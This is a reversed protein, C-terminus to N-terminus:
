NTEKLAQFFVGYDNKPNWVIFGAGGSDEAAKIQKKIYSKYSLGSKGVLMTFGQIYAIVRTTGARKIARTKGDYITRYPNKQYFPDGYFHSPYLMPYLTDMYRAFVEMKQGIIDNNNFPIRGFIDAGIRVGYPRLKLEFSRLVGAIVRYRQNLTLGKIHLNDAFRIYDLQIEMFGAQASEEARKRVGDLHAEPAPYTKLGGEFVVVRSVLYFGQSKAEQIFEKPPVRPQVDVVLTNIGTAKAKKLLPLYRSSTRATYNNIYIGKYYVPATYKYNRPMVPDIGRLLHDVDRQEKSEGSVKETRSDDKGKLPNKAEDLVDKAIMNAIKEKDSDFSKHEKERNLFSPQPNQEQEPEAARNKETNIGQRTFPKKETDQSQTRPKTTQKKINPRGPEVETGSDANKVVATNPPTEKESTRMEESAAPRGTDMAGNQSQDPYKQRTQMTNRYLSDQNSRPPPIEPLAPVFPDEAPISYVLVTSFATATLFFILSSPLWKRPGSM